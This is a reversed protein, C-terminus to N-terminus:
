SRRHRVFHYLYRNLHEVYERGGCLLHFLTSRTLGDKMLRQEPNM